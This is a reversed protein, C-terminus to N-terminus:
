GFSSIRDILIKLPEASSRCRAHKARRAARPTTHPTPHTASKRFGAHKTMPPRHHTESREVWGVLQTRERGWRAGFFWPIAPFGFSLIVLLNMLDDFMIPEQDDVRPLRNSSM